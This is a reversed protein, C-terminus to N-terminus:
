CKFVFKQNQTDSFLGFIVWDPIFKFLGSIECFEAFIREFYGFIIEIKGSFM